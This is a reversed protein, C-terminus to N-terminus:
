TRLGRPNLTLVLAHRLVMATLVTKCGLLRKPAETYLDLSIHGKYLGGLAGVVKRDGVFPRVM